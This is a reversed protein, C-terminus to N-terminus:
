LKQVNGWVKHFHPNAASSLSFYLRMRAVPVAPMIQIHVSSTAPPNATCQLRVAKKEVPNMLSDVYVLKLVFSGAYGSPFTFVLSHATTFPNPFSANQGSPAMLVSAPTTTGALSATDLSSFLNLEQLNFGIPKWQDDGPGSLMFGLPDFWWQKSVDIQVAQPMPAPAPDKGCGGLLVAIFIIALSGITKM